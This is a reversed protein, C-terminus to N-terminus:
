RTEAIVATGLHPETWADPHSFDFNPSDWFLENSTNLLLM